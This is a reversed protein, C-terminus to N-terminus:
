PSTQKPVLGHIFRPNQLFKEGIGRQQGEVLSHGQLAAEKDAM